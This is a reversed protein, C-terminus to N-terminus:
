KSAEAALADASFVQSLAEHLSINKEKAIVAARMKQDNLKADPDEEHLKVGVDGKEGLEVRLIEAFLSMAVSRNEESLSALFDVLKSKSKAEVFGTKQNDSLMFVEVGSQIQSLLKEHKLQKNEEELAQLKAKEALQVESLQEGQPAEAPPEVPTEAPPAEEGQKQAEAAAAAEEDAKKKALEEETPQVEEPKAEVEATGAEVEAKEEESAEALLARMTEKEEKSVFARATLLEIFKKLMLTNNLEQIESLALAKQGKLAPTNTLALGIFVNQCIEGSEHHPYELALEASVFKFLKKTIKEVGLETWEVEAFLKSGDKYLDKVWGAAESGRNHELNVQVETGYVNEKFNKVYMELMEDTIRWERDRIVGARLVEVQSKAQGEKLSIDSFTFINKNM